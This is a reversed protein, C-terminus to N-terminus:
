NFTDGGRPFCGQCSERSGVSNRAERIRGYVTSIPAEEGVEISQSSMYTKMGLGLM